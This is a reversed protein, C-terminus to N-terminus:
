PTPMKVLGARLRPDAVAYLLDAVLLGLVTLLGNLLLVALVVPWDSALVAEVLLGGMGPLNFILEILVSGALLAPLLGALLTIVPFLANRLVHGWLIQHVGLGKLRATLVYAQKLEEVAAVRMQRSLFALAPAVLCFVPLVM